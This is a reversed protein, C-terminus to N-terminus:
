ANRLVENYELEAADTALVPQTVFGRLQKLLADKSSAYLMKLKIPGFDPNRNSFLM